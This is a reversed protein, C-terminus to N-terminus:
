PCEAPAEPAPMWNLWGDTGTTEFLRRLIESGQILRFDSGQAAARRQQELILALGSSDMFGLGRLDLVLTRSGDHRELEARLQGVTAIDLEGHPAVVIANDRDGVTISFEGSRMRSPLLTDSGRRATLSTMAPLEQLRPECTEILRARLAVRPEQESLDLRSADQLIDLVERSAVPSGGARGGLGWLARLEGAPQEVPVAVWWSLSLTEGTGGPSRPVTPDHTVLQVGGKRLAAWTATGPKLPPVASRLWATLGPDGAVEAAVRRLVGGSVIDLCSVDAVTAVAMECLSGLGPPVDLAPEPGFSMRVLTGTGAGADAVELTQALAGVLSLGHGSGGTGRRRAIGVGDDAVTVIVREGEVRCSVRVEGPAEVYAHRVVNTVIESVALKVTEVV